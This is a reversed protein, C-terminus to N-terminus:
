RLRVTILGGDSTHVAGVSYKVDGITLVDGPLLEALTSDAGTFTRESHGVVGFHDGLDRLLLGGVAAGHIEALVYGPMDPDVFAALDSADFAM